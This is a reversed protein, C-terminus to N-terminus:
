LAFLFMSIAYLFKLVCFAFVSVFIMFDFFAFLPLLLLRSESWFILRLLFYLFVVCGLDVM